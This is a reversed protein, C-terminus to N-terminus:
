VQPPRRDQLRKRSWLSSTEQGAPLIKTKQKTDTV